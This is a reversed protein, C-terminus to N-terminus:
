WAEWAIGVDLTLIEFNAGYQNGAIWAGSAGVWPRLPSAVAAAVVISTQFCPSVWRSRETFAVPAADYRQAFLSWAGGSELAFGFWHRDWPAGWGVLAGVRGDAHTEQAGANSGVSDLSAALAFRIDKVVRFAASVRFGLPENGTSSGTKGVLFNASLGGHGEDSATGSRAEAGAIRPCVLLTLTGAPPLSATWGTKM